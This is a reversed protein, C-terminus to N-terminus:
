EPVYIGRVWVNTTGLVTRAKHWMPMCYVHHAGLCPPPDVWIIWEKPTENISDIKSEIRQILSRSQILKQNLENFWWTHNFWNKIWNISDFEFILFMTCESASGTCFHCFHLVNTQSAGCKDVKLHRFWIIISDQNLEFKIRNISGLMMISNVKSEIRQVLARSQTLKQNSENFWSM